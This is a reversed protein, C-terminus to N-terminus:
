CKVVDLSVLLDLPGLTETHDAGPQGPGPREGELGGQGAEEAAAAVVAEVGQEPGLLVHVEPEPHGPVLRFVLLDPLEEAGPADGGGGVKGGGEVEPFKDLHADIETDKSKIRQEPTELHM